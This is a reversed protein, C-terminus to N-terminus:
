WSVKANQVFHAGPVYAGPLGSDRIARWNAIGGGRDYAVLVIARGCNGKARVGKNDHFHPRGRLFLLASAMAWVSEQFWATDTSAPLLAIGTGH